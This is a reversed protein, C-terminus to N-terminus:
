GASELNRVARVVDRPSLNRRPDNDRRVVMIGPHHGGAELVLLHLEEFDEYNLTMCPRNEHVAQRLQVADHKGMLGVDAPRQVDHGAARLLQTLLASAIDEDLYLRM